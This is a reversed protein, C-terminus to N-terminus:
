SQRVICGLGTQVNLMICNADSPWHVQQGGGPYGPPADGYGGGGGGSYGGGGGGGYGSGGGAFGRQGNGGGGSGGMRHSLVFCDSTHRHLQLNSDATM